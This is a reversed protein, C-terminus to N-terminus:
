IETRCPRMDSEAHDQSGEQALKRRGKGRRSMANRGAGKKDATLVGRTSHDVGPPNSDHESPAPPYPSRSLASCRVPRARQTRLARVAAAQSARAREADHSCRPTAGERKGRGGGGGDVVM